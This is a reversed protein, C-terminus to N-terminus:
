HQLWLENEGNSESGGELRCSVESGEGTRNQILEHGYFELWHVNM